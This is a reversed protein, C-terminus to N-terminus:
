EVDRVRSARVLRDTGVWRLDDTGHRVEATVITDLEGLRRAKKQLLAAALQAVDDGDARVLALACRRDVLIADGLRALAGAPGRGLLRRV